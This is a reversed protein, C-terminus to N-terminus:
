LSLWLITPVTIMLALTSVGINMLVRRFWQLFM